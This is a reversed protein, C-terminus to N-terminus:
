RVVRLHAVPAPERSETPTPEPEPALAAPEAGVTAVVVTGGDPPCEIEVDGGLFQAFARMSRTGSCLESEVAPSGIGDDVVRIEIRSRRAVEVLGVHVRISTAGAHDRVNRVAEQVIRLVITETTWDLELEESVEVSLRPKRTSGYLSDVFAVIPARLRESRRPEHDVPRIAVMLRRTSEAHRALQDRVSDLADAASAPDSRASERMWSAVAAYTSVAQEHLRAAVLHREEDAHRMVDALLVRREEAASEVGAFLRKTENMTLFHRVMSLGLLAILVAGLYGGAWPVQDHLLVVEVLLIPLLALTFLTIVGSRRRVQDQPALRDLGVPTHATAFLPTLLMLAMAVGQALLFPSAPLTFGSVGQIVQAAGDLGAALALAVGLGEVTRREGALRVYITVAWGFASICEATALAAPITFWSAPSNIVAEGVVMPAIAVLATLLMAWEVVDPTVARSGSRSRMVSLLAIAFIVTAAVVAVGGFQRIATFGTAEMVLVSLGIAYVVSLGLMWMRWFSRDVSEVRRAARATVVLAPTTYLGSILVWTVLYASEGHVFLGVLAVLPLTAAVWIIGARRTRDSFIRDTDAMATAGETVGPQDRNETMM